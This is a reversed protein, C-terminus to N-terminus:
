RSAQSMGRVLMLTPASFRKRELLVFGFGTTQFYIALVLKPRKGSTM